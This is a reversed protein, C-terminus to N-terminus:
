GGETIADLTINAIFTQGALPHNIDYTITDNDYALVKAMQQQTGVWSGIQPDALRYILLDGDATVETEGFDGMLRQGPEPDHRVLAYDGSINVITVPWYLENIHIIDGPLPQRGWQQRLKAINLETYRSSTQVRPETVPEEYPLGYADEPPITISKNEKPHMGILARQIGYIMFATDGIVGTKPKCDTFPSNEQKEQNTKCENSGLLTGNLFTITYYIAVTSGPKATLLPLTTSTAPNLLSSTTPNDCIANEDADQCCIGNILVSPKACETPPNGLCGCALAVVALVLLLRKM